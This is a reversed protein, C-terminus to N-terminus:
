TRSKHHSHRHVYHAYEIGRQPITLLRRPEGHVRRLFDTHCVLKCCQSHVHNLRSKGDGRAAVQFCHAFHRLFNAGHRDRRQRARTFVVHIGCNLREFRGGSGPQMNKQSSRIQMQAHLQVHRAFLRKLGNARHDLKSTIANSPLFKGRCFGPASVATRAPTRCISHVTLPMPSRAPFAASSSIATASATRLSLKPTVVLMRRSCKNGDLRMSVSIVPASTAGLLATTPAFAKACSAPM